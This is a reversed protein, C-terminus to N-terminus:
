AVYFAALSPKCPVMEELPRRELFVEGDRLEYAFQNIREVHRVKPVGTPLEVSWM